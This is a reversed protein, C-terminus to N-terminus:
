YQTRNYMEQEHNNFIDWFAQVASSSLEVYFKVHWMSGIDDVHFPKVGRKFYTRSLFSYMISLYIILNSLSLYYCMLLLWALLKIIFLWVLLLKFFVGKGERSTGSHGEGAKWAGDRGSTIFDHIEHKNKKIDKIHINGHAVNNLKAYVKYLHYSAAQM